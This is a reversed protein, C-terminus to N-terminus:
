SCMCSFKYFISLSNVSKYVIPFLLMLEAMRVVLQTRGGELVRRDMYPLQSEGSSVREEKELRQSEGSQKSSVQTHIWEYTREIAADKEASKAYSKRKAEEELAIIIITILLLLLLSLPVTCCFSM